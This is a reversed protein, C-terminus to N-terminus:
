INQSALHAVHEEDVLDDVVAICLPVVRGIHALAMRAKNHTRNEIFSLVLEIIRSLNYGYGALRTELHKFRPADEERAVSLVHSLHMLFAFDHEQKSDKLYRALESAGMTAYQGLKVALPSDKSDEAIASFLRRREDAPSVYAGQSGLADAFMRAIEEMDARGDMPGAGGVGVRLLSIRPGPFSGRPRSGHGGHEAELRERLSDSAGGRGAFHVNSEDNM